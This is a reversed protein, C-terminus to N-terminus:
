SLIQDTEPKSLVYLAFIGYLTGLPFSLLALAGVVMTGIKGSKKYKLLRSGSIICLLAYAFLLLTVFGLIVVIFPIFEPPVEQDIDESVMMPVIGIALSIFFAGILAFVGFIIEIVAIISIYSRISQDPNSYNINQQVNTNSSNNTNQNNTKLKAGCKYCFNNDPEISKGCNYCVNTSL